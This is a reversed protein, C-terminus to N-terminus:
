LGEKKFALIKSKIINRYRLFISICIVFLLLVKIILINMLNINILWFPAILIAGLGMLSFYTGWKTEIFYCKKAVLYHLYMMIVSCIITAYAAGYMRYIPILLWNLLLNLVAVGIIILTVYYTKKSQYIAMRFLSSSELILSAFVILALIKWAEFYEENLFLGIFEKAFFITLFAFLISFLYYYHNYISLKYKANTIYDSNAIKFYIPNYALRISTTLLVFIYAIKYGLSYLGVETLNFYRDIFIRDSSNLIWGALAAPLLPLSYKLISKLMAPNFQLKSHKYQFYLYLPLMLVNTYMLAKLVGIAKQQLVIIFYINLLLAIVLQVVGVILYTKGQETIIFIIRTVTQFMGVFTTIVMISYFPYFNISSYIKDVSNSLIFILSMSIVSFIMILWFASGLFEKKSKEDKYDYYLRFLSFEVGLSFVIGFFYQLAAMNNVIGYESPLLYQTYVPVMIFSVVMPLMKGLTYYISNSVIKASM